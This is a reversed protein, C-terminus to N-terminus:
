RWSRFRVGVRGQPAHCGSSACDLPARASRVHNLALKQMDGQFASGAQHCTKCTGAGGGLSNNHDMRVGAAWSTGPAARHCDDCDMGSGNLLATRYPIHQATPAQAGSPGQSVYAGNHCAKCDMSRVAAHNMVIAISLNTSSRHCNSCLAVPPVPIHRPPLRQLGPLAPAATALAQPAAAVTVTRGRVAIARAVAAAAGVPSANAWNRTDRHCIECQQSAGAHAPTQPMGVAPPFAGTHCTSCQSKINTFAHARAPTWSRFGFANLHCTDCNDIGEGVVFLGPVHTVPRGNAGDHFGDHCSFCNRAVSVQTHNFTAPTWSTVSRHCDGCQQSAAVPVHRPTRGTAGNGTHCVHCGTSRVANHSFNNISFSRTSHCDACTGVAPIHRQPRQTNGRALRAGNAHCSECDRPTGKMVGGVHCSECPLATHAGTLPYGTSAHNFNPAIAAGALGCALCLSLAALRRVAALWRATRPRLGSGAPAPNSALSQM